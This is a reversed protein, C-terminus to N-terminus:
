DTCFRKTLSHDDHSMFWAHSCLLELDNGRPRERQFVLQRIVYADAAGDRKGLEAAVLDRCKVHRLTACLDIVLDPYADILGIIAEIRRKSLIQRNLLLRDSYNPIYSTDFDVWLDDPAKWSSMEDLTPLREYVLFDMEDPHEMVGIQAGNASVMQSFVVTINETSRQDLDLFLNTCWNTSLEKEFSVQVNTELLNALERAVHNPKSLLLTGRNGDRTHFHLM